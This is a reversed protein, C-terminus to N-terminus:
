KDCSLPPSLSIPAKIGTGLQASMAQKYGSPVCPWNRKNSTVFNDIPWQRRELIKYPAILHPPIM